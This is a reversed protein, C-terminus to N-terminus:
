RFWSIWYVVTSPMYKPTTISVPIYLLYLCTCKFVDFVLIRCWYKYVPKYVFSFWSTFSQVHPHSGQAQSVVFHMM